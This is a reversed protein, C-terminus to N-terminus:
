ISCDIEDQDKELRVRGVNSIIIARSFITTKDEPCITITATFNQATNFPAFRLSDRTSTVRYDNVTDISGIIEENGDLAGDGDEDVFVIKNLAWDEDCNQMDQTPCVVVFANETVATHRALQLASVHNNVIAAVRNRKYFNGLSPTVVTAIISFLALTVLLEVITFGKKSKGLLMNVIGVFNVRQILATKTLM